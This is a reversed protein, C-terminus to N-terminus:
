LALLLVFRFVDDLSGFSIFEFAARSFHSRPWLYFAPVANIKRSLFDQTAYKIYFLIYIPLAAINDLPGPASPRRGVRSVLLFFFITIVIDNDSKAPPFRWVFRPACFRRDFNFKDDKAGCVHDQRIIYYQKRPFFIFVRIRFFRVVHM